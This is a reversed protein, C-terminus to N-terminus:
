VNAADNNLRICAINRLFHLKEGSSFFFWVWKLVPYGMAVWYFFFFSAWKLVPYGMAVWYNTQESMQACFDENVLISVNFKWFSPGLIQCTEVSDILTKSLFFKDLRCSISFDSNSWSFTELGPNRIGWVEVLGHSNRFNKFSNVFRSM